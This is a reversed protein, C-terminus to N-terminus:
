YNNNIIFECVFSNDNHIIYLVKKQPDWYAYSHIDEDDFLTVFKEELTKNDLKHEGETNIKINIGNGVNIINPSKISLTFNEFSRKPDIITLGLDHNSWSLTEYFALIRDIEPLYTIWLLYEWDDYWAWDKNLVDYIAVLGNQGNADTLILYVWNNFWNCFMYECSENWNWIQAIDINNIYIKDNNDLTVEIVKEIQLFQQFDVNAEESAEILDSIYLDDESYDFNNELVEVLKPYKKIQELANESLELYYDNIIKIDKIM